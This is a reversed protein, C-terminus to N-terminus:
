GLLGMLITTPKEAPLMLSLAAAIILLRKM